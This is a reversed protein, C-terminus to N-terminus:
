IYSCVARETYTNACRLTKRSTKKLSAIGTMFLVVALM